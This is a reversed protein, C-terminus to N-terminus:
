DEGVVRTYCDSHYIAGESEFYNGLKKDVPQECISCHRPAHREGLLLLRGKKLPPPPRLRKFEAIVHEM